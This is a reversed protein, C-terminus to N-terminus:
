GESLGVEDAGREVAGSSDLHGELSKHTAGALLEPSGGSVAKLCVDSDWIASPIPCRGCGSSGVLRPM